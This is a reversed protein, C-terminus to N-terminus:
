VNSSMAMRHISLTDLQANSFSFPAPRLYLQWQVHAPRLHLQLQVVSIGKDKEQDAPVSRPAQVACETGEHM